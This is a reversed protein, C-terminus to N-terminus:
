GGNGVGVSVGLCGGDGVGVDIALGEGKSERLGDCGLCGGVATPGDFFVAGGYGDDEGLDIGGVCLEVEYEGARHIGTAGDGEAVAIQRFGFLLTMSSRAPFSRAEMVM